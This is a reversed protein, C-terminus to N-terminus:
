RKPALALIGNQIEAAKGNGAQREPPMELILLVFFWGRLRNLARDVRKITKRMADVRPFTRAM